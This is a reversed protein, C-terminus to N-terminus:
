RDGAGAGGAVLERVAERVEEPLGALVQAALDEAETRAEPEEDRLGRVAEAVDNDTLHAYVRATTTVDRHRLAQQTLKLNGTERLLHTAFTHRLTHPTVRGEIGARDALRRVVQRVYRDSIAKGPTLEVVERGAAFGESTARGRSRSGKSITCFLPGNGLGFTARAEVWKALRVAARQGVALNAAKGGKGNRVKVTVLQGAESVLDGTTLALAEGVRLGSDGMLTLLALNRKGTPSRTEIADLLADLQEVSLAEQARSGTQKAM